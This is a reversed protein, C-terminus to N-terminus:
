KRIARLVERKGKPPGPLRETLFGINQLMRRINGKACYTSLVGEPSMAEYLKRFISEKWMEPQKEPAFADFYVADLNSPLDIDFLDGKIKQISFYPNIIVDKDWEADNVLRFFPILSNDQHPILSDTIHKPLPYLEVSYYSTKVRKELAKQATLAANLGTGFGVEFVRIESKQGAAKQWALNIYVHLSESLAGKVSHYHEDMEQLYLTPSGDATSEILIKNHIAM